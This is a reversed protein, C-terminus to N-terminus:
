CDDRMHTGTGYEGAFLVPVIYRCATVSTLIRKQWAVKVPVTAPLLCQDVPVTDHLVRTDHACSSSALFLPGASAVYRM